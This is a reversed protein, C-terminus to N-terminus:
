AQKHFFYVTDVIDTNHPVTGVAVRPGEWAVAGAARGTDCPRRRYVAAAACLRQSARPRRGGMHDTDIPWPDRAVQETRRTAREAVMAGDSEFLALCARRPVHRVRLARASSIYRTYARVDLSPLLQRRSTLCCRHTRHMHAPPSASSRRASHAAMSAPRALGAHRPWIARAARPDPVARAHHPRELSPSPSAWLTVRAIAATSRGAAPGDPTDVKHTREHNKQPARAAATSGHPRVRM